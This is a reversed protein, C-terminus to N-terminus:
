RDFEIKVGIGLDSRQFNSEEFKFKEYNSNLQFAWRFDPELDLGLEINLETAWHPRSKSSKFSNTEYPTIFKPIFGLNIFGSEGQYVRYKTVLDIQPGVVTTFRTSSIGKALPREAIKLLPMFSFRQSSQYRFGIGLHFFTKEDQFSNNEEVNPFNILTFGLELALKLVSEKKGQIFSLNFKQSSQGKLKRVGRENGKGEIEVKPYFSIYEIGWNQQKSIEDINQVNGKNQNEELVETAESRNESFSEYPNYSSSNLQEKISELREVDDNKVKEEIVLGKVEDVKLGKPPQYNGTKSNVQGMFDSIVYTKTKEDFPSGKPPAFYIGSDLDLYGGPKIEYKMDDLVKTSEVLIVNEDDINKNKKNRNKNKKQILQSFNFEKESVKRIVQIQNPAIKTPPILKNSNHKTGSFEGAKVSVANKFNSLLKVENEKKALVVEGEITVVSSQLTKHNEIMVFQTGRIGLAANRTTIVLKNKDISNNKLISHGSHTLNKVKEVKVRIQGGLLSVISPGNESIKKLIFKSKPRIQILSGDRLKLTVLSREQTFISTDELLDDGLNLEVAKLHSPPLQTVQGIKKIVKAIKINSYAKVSFLSFLFSVFIIKKLFNFSYLVGEQQM